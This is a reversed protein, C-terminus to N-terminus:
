YPVMMHILSKEKESISPSIKIGDQPLDKIFDHKKTQYFNRLIFDVFWYPTLPASVPIRCDKVDGLTLHSKPHTVEVYIDKRVDFDFRLPFPIIKRHIIDIFLEDQMYSDAEDQFSPLEPSPYFALRHQLLIDKKFLYMMQLLSGDILKMNFSRKNNLEKYIEIYLIDKLSFSINGAGRFTVEVGKDINREFSFNSDICIGKDILSATLKKISADINKPTMKM